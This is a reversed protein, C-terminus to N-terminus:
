VCTSWSSLSRSMVNSDTERREANSVSAALTPASHNMLGSLSSYQNLGDAGALAAKSMLQSLGSLAVVNSTRFLESFYWTSALLMMLLTNILLPDVLLGSFIVSMKLPSPLLSVNPGVM